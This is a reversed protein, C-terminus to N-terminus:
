ELRDYGKVKERTRTKGRLWGEVKNRVTHNYVMVGIFVVSLRNMWM